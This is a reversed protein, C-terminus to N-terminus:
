WFFPRVPPLAFMLFSWWFFPSVPFLEPLCRFFALSVQSFFYLIFLFFLIFTSVFPSFPTSLSQCLRIFDELLSYGFILSEPLHSLLGVSIYAGYCARFSSVKMFFFFFVVSIFLRLKESVWTQLSIIRHSQIVNSKMVRADYCYVM